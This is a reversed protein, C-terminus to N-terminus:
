QHSPDENMPNWNADNGQTLHMVKNGEFRLHLPVNTQWEHSEVILQLWRPLFKSYGFEKVEGGLPIRGDSYHVMLQYLSDIDIIVLKSM